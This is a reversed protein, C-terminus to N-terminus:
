RHWRPPTKQWIIAPRLNHWYVAAARDYGILARLATISLAMLLGAITAILLGTLTGHFFLFAATTFVLDLAMGYGLLRRLTIVRAATVYFTTVTVVAMTFATIM